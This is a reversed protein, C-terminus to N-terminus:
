NETYYIWLHSGIAQAYKGLAKKYEQYDDDSFYRQGWIKGYNSGCSLFVFLLFIIKFKM